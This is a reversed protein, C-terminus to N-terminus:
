AARAQRLARRVLEATRTPHALDAWDIRICRWGTLECIRQERKKEAIVVDSARQGPKLLKEYKVKGDFELFLGFEPWAFDVRHIIRGSEDKIPYQAVPTPLGADLILHLTRSEGVSEVLGNARHLVLGTRLTNPWRDMVAYRELLEEETTMGCHLFHNVIVLGAEASAVTTVELALRTPTIVRVGHRDVVDDEALKGCHQHVGAEHRGARGDPRTVHVDALDLGWVPADYEPLGSVHSLVVDTCSRQVVARARLGHRGAADLQDHNTKDTYAGPRIRILVGADVLRRISRDDHGNALLTKRLYVPANRPDDDPREPPIMM